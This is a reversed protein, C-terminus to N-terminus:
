AINWNLHVLGAERTTGRSVKTYKSTHRLHMSVSHLASSTTCYSILLLTIIQFVENAGRRNKPRVGAEGQGQLRACGQAVRRASGFSVAGACGQAV